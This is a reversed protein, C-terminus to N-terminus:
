FRYLHKPFNDVTMGTVAVGERKLLRKKRNLEKQEHSGNFGNLNGNSAVVRHCPVTPAYPNCRLTQGVARYAKTGLAQAIEKYTTVKGAPIRQTLTYVKQAFASPTKTM